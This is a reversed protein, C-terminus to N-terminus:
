AILGIALGIFVSEWLSVDFGYHCKAVQYLIYLGTFRPVKQWPYAWLIEYFRVRWPRKMIHHPWPYSTDKLDVVHEDALKKKKFGIGCVCLYKDM